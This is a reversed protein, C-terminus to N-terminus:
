PLVEKKVYEFHYGGTHSSVGRATRAINTRCLGTAESAAIVSEFIQNTEICRVPKHKKAKHKKSARRGTLAASIKAKTEETFTRGKLSQSIRKKCEEAHTFGSVGDGGDTLNCLPWGAERAEGILLVELELAEENNLSDEVITVNYTGHKKVISHWWKSRSAKMFPRRPVGKGIYFVDGNPKSHTYVCYNNM